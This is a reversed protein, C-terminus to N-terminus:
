LLRSQIKLVGHLPIYHTTADAVANPVKEIFKQSLQDKIIGHYQELRGPVKTLNVQLSHVQGLAMRYNNPLSPCDKQWPLRVFYQGDMYEVTDVYNQYARDDEISPATPDIGISELEWLKHSPNDNEEILDTINVNSDNM